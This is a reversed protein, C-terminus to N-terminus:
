KKKSTVSTNFLFHSLFSKVEAICIITCLVYWFWLYINKTAKTFPHKSFCTIFYDYIERLTLHHRASEQSPTFLGDRNMGFSNPQNVGSCTPLVQPHVGFINWLLFPSPFM